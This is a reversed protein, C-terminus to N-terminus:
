RTDAPPTLIRRYWDALPQLGEVNEVGQVLYDLRSSYAELDASPESDSVEQWCIPSVMSAVDVGEATNNTGQVEDLVSTDIHLLTEYFKEVEVQFRAVDLESNPDLDRAAEDIEDMESRISRRMDLMETSSIEFTEPCFTILGEDGMDGGYLLDRYASSDQEWFTKLNEGSIEVDIYQAALTNRVRQATIVQDLGELVKVLGFFRDESSSDDSSCGTTFSTSILIASAVMLKVFLPNRTQRRPANIM